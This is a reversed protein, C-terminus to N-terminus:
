HNIMENLKVKPPNFGSEYYFWIYLYCGCGIGRSLGWFAFLRYCTQNFKTRFEWIEDEIRQNAFM